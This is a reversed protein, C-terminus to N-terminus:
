VTYVSEMTHMCVKQVIIRVHEWNNLSYNINFAGLVIILLIFVILANPTAHYVITDTQLPRQQAYIYVVKITFIFYLIM